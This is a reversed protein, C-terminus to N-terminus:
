KSNDAIYLNGAPDVAVGLPNNLSASTALGNDGSYGAIGNGAVVTRVSRDVKFVLGSDPDPFYISGQADAAMRGPTSIGAQTAPHFGLRGRRHHFHHAPWLGSLSDFGLLRHFSVPLTGHTKKGLMKLM